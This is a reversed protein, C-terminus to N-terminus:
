TSFLAKTRRHRSLRETHPGAQAIMSSRNANDIAQAGAATFDLKADGIGIASLHVLGIHLAVQAIEEPTPPVKGEARSFTRYYAHVVKLVRATGLLKSMRLVLRQSTSM